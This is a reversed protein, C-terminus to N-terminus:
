KAPWGRREAEAVLHEAVYRKGSADIGGIGLLPSREPSIEARLAVITDVTERVDFMHCFGRRTIEVAVVNNAAHCNGSSQGQM